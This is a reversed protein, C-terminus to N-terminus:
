AIVSDVWEWATFYIIVAGVIVGVSGLMDAWVELYAGKVNLSEDKKGSLLRMSILNVILGFVAVVMMGVSQVEAPESLR